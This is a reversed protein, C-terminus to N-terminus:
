NKIRQVLRVVDNFTTVLALGLLLVIGVMSIKTETEVPISKGRIAEIALLLLKNGDLAPFPILNTAGIAISIFATISLLSLVKETLNKGMGAVDNMTTVIGVPGSMKAISIKGVVLRKITYGVNRVNAWIYKTSHILVEGVNGKHKEFDIGMYKTNFKKNAIEDQLQQLTNKM